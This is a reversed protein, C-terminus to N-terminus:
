NTAKTNPEERADSKERMYIKWINRYAGPSTTGERSIVPVVSAIVTAATDKLARTM